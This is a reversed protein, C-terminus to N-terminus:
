KDLSFLNNRKERLDKNVLCFFTSRWQLVWTYNASTTFLPYFHAFHRGDHSLDSVAGRIDM